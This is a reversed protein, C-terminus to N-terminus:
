AASELGKILEKAREIYPVHSPDKENALTCVTQFAVIAFEKNMEHMFCVGTYYFPAPDSLGSMLAVIQYMERAEEYKSQAQLTAALGMWNRSADSAYMCLWRFLPEAQGYKRSEYFQTALLYRADIVKKDIGVISYLPVGGLLAKTIDEMHEEPLDFANAFKKVTQKINSVITEVAEM